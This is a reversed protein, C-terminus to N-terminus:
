RTRVRAWRQQGRETMQSHWVPFEGTALDSYAQEILMRRKVLVEAASINCIMLQVYMDDRCPM